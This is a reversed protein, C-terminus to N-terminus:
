ATAMYMYLRPCWLHLSSEIRPAASAAMLLAHSILYPGLLYAPVQLAYGATTHLDVTREVPDGVSDDDYKCSWQLLSALPLV